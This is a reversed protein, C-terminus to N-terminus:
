AGSKGGYSNSRAGMQWCKRIEQSLQGLRKRLEMLQAPDTETQIQAKVAFAQEWLAATEPPENTPRWARIPDAM